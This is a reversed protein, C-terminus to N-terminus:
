LYPGDTQEGLLINIYQDVINELAFPQWDEEKRTPFDGILCGVIAKSLADPDKMPVLAGLEGAKLIEHPGSPCDTAIVAPSCYLAEVLVTPLGEWLSSLIFAKAHKMYAYPNDVFGPLCVDEQIDLEGCLKELSAREEGEGLIMLRAKHLSRVKAFARLLNGFDKQETLSGVALLVPPQNDGFWEHLLPASAKEKLTPTIGPNYIVQVKHRPINLNDVLDDVVGQSVGVVKDAWRFLYRALMPSLRIFLNSSAPASKSLTNQVNLVLRQPMGTWRHAILAAFNAQSLAALMADPQEQRLYRVLAPLKTLTKFLPVKRGNGLDVLKISKPVQALYPGEAQALVLDVKYGQNAIGEALNLMTREAGGGYLAPLFIALHQNRNQGNM